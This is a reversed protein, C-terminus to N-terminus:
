AVARKQCLPFSTHRQLHFPLRHEAMGHSIQVIGRPQALPSYIKAYVTDRGNASPFRHERVEYQQIMM